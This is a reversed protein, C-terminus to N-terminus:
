GWLEELNTISDPTDTDELIEDLSVSNNRISELLEPKKGLLKRLKVVINANALIKESEEESLLEYIWIKELVQMNINKMIEDSNDGLNISKLDLDDKGSLRKFYLQLVTEIPSIEWNECISEWRLNINECGFRRLLDNYEEPIVGNQLINSVKGSFIRIPDRLAIKWLESILKQWQEATLKKQESSNPTNKSM